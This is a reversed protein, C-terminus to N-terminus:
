EGGQLKFKEDKIRLAEFYAERFFQAKVALTMMIDLESPENERYHKLQEHTEDRYRMLDAQLEADDWILQAYLLADNTTEFIPKGLMSLPWDALDKIKRIM